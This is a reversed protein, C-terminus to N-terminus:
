VAAGRVVACVSSSVAIAPAEGAVRDIRLSWDSMVVRPSKPISPVLISVSYGGGGLLAVRHEVGGLLGLVLGAGSEGDLALSGAPEHLVPAPTAWVAASARILVRPFARASCTCAPM